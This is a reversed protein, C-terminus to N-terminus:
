VAMNSTCLNISTVAKYHGISNRIVVAKDHGMFMGYFCQKPYCSILSYRKPIGLDCAVFVVSGRFNHFMPSYSFPGNVHLAAYCLKDLLGHSCLPYLVM